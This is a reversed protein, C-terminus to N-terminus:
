VGLAQLIHEIDTPRNDPPPLWTWDELGNPDQDAVLRGTPGSPCFCLGPDENDVFEPCKTGDRDHIRRWIM